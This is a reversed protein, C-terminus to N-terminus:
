ALLVGDILGYRIEIDGTMSESRKLEAVARQIQSAWAEADAHPNMNRLMYVALPLEAADYVAPTVFTEPVCTRLFEKVLCVRDMRLKLEVIAVLM